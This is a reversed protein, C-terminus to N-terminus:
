SRGPRAEPEGLPVAYDDGNLAEGRLLADVARKLVEARPPQACMAIAMTDAIGAAKAYSGWSKLGLSDQKEYVIDIWNRFAGAGDACEAGRAAGLAFRHQELPYSVYLIQVDRPRASLTERITQHYARCAPCELDTLVIMKIPAATDGGMSISAPLVDKWFTVFAPGRAPPRSEAFWTRYVVSAALTLAALGITGSVLKELSIRRMSISGAESYV